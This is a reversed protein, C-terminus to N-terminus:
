AGSVKGALSEDLAAIVKACHQIGVTALQFDRIRKNNRSLFCRIAGDQKVGRQASIGSLRGFAFV